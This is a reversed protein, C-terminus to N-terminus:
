AQSKKDIPSCFLDQADRRPPAVLEAEGCHGVEKRFDKAFAEALGQLEEDKTSEGYLNLMPMENLLPLEGSKPLLTLVDIGSSPDFSDAYQAVQYSREVDVEKGTSGDEDQYEEPVHYLDKHLGLVADLTEAGPYLTFYGRLRSLQVLYELWAPNRKSAEKKELITPIVGSVAQRELLLSVYNHLEEWKDGFILIADSNPAQWIFPIDTSGSAAGSATPAKFPATGDLSTQPKSFGIGLLRDEWGAVKAASDHRYRLVAYKVDAFYIDNPMTAVSM